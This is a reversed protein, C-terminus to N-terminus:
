YLREPEPQLSTVWERADDLEARRFIKVEGPMMWGLGHIARHLWDADTVIAIREWSRLHGLGLKSDEWAAGATYDPFDHALVYLMRVRGDGSKARAAEVAPVLVQEYDDATVKDDAEVGVVGEPLDEILTLV